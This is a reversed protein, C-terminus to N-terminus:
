SLFNLSGWVCGLEVGGGVCLCVSVCVCVCVCVFSPAQTIVVFNRSCFFTWYWFAITMTNGLFFLTEPRNDERGGIGGGSKNNDRGRQPVKPGGLGLLERLHFKSIWGCSMSHWIRLFKQLFEPPDNQVALIIWSERSYRSHNGRIPWQLNWDSFPHNSDSDIQSNLSSFSPNNSSTPTMSTQATGKWARPPRIEFVRITHNLLVAQLTSSLWVIKTAKSAEFPPGWTCSM